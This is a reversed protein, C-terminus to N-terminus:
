KKLYPPSPLEQQFAVFDLKVHKTKTKQPSETALMWVWTGKQQQHEFCEQASYVWVLEMYRSSKAHELHACKKSYTCAKIRKPM